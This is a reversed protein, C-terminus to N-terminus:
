AEERYLLVAALVAVIREVPQETNEALKQILKAIGHIAATASNAQIASQFERSGRVKELILRVEDETREPTWKKGEEM